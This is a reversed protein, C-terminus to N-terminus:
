KKGKKKAPRPIDYGREKLRQEAGKRLDGPLDGLFACLNTWRKRDSQVQEYDSKPQLYVEVSRLTQDLLDTRGQKIWATIEARHSGYSDLIKEAALPRDTQKLTKLFAVGRKDGVLGVIAAHTTKYDVAEKDAVQLVDSVYKWARPNSDPADFITSDTRVYNVVAPHISSREAWQLWEAQDPVVAVQVFRSLMAGDLEFVEYDDDAPNIAAVPLWGEPLTYDNLCRATLLQLCPTRVYRDCRNLEEFVLLGKGKTPLFAPPLYKTTAGNMKPLGTLDVAEMLSLDRSIYGIKLEEAAREILESKGVGHRGVLLPPRGAAYCLKVLEIVPAGARVIDM